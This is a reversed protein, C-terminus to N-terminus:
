DQWSLKKSSFFGRYDISRLLGPQRLTGLTIAQELSETTPPSRSFFHTFVLCLEGKQKKARGWSTGAVWLTGLTISQEPSVTSPPSRSFFHPLVLSLEGQKKAQGWSGLAQLLNSFYHSRCFYSVLPWIMDVKTIHFIVEHWRSQRLRRNRPLFKFVRNTKSDM